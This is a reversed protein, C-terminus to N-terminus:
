ITSATVGTTNLYGGYEYTADSAGVTTTTITQATTQASVDNSGVTVPISSSAIKEVVGTSSNRTLFDYGGVSTTPTTTLTMSTGLLLSTSISAPGTVQLEEQGATETNAGIMTHGMFSNLAGGAENFGRRGTGATINSKFGNNLVGQTLSNEAVFGNYEAVTNGNLAGGKASFGTISNISASGASIPVNFEVGTYAGSAISTFAGVMRYMYQNAGTFGAYNNNIAVDVDQSTNLSITKSQVNATATVNAGAVTGTATLNGASSLTMATTLAGGARAYRWLLNATPTAAQVPVLYNYFDSSESASGTTNWANGNFHLSPSIKQNGLTAATTQTLLLADTPTTGISAKTITAL